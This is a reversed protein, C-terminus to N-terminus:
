YLEALKLNFADYLQEKSSDISTSEADTYTVFRSQRLAVTDFTESEDPSTRKYGLYQAYLQQEENYRKTFSYNIM